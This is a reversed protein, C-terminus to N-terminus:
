RAGRKNVNPHSQSGDCIDELIDTSILDRDSENSSDMADMEEESLLPLMISDNNSCEADNRITTSINKEEFLTFRIM